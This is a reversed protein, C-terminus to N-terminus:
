AAGKKSRMDGLFEILAWEQRREMWIASWEGMQDGNMVALQGRPVHQFKCRRSDLDHITAPVMKADPNEPHGVIVRVREGGLTTINSTTM